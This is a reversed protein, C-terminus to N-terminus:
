RRGLDVMGSTTFPIKPSFAMDIVVNGSFDYRVSNSNTIRSLLRGISSMFNTRVLLDFEQEGNAPVVFPAESAGEAFSDGELFLKYDISKVPLARANPNQVHLRVRFQQSFMDGSTMSAAVLSFQPPVLKSATSACGGLLAVVSLIVWRWVASHTAKM